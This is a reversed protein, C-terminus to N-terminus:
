SAAPTQKSKVSWVAAILATAAAIVGGYDAAPIVGRGVLYAVIAPVVARIIGNITNVDMPKGKPIFPDLWEFSISPLESPPRAPPPKPTDQPLPPNALLLAQAEVSKVRKEWGKGFTPWTKLGRLFAMRSACLGRILASPDPHQQVAALTQQGVSGDQPIGLLSQLHRVARLPGSNVAFDFVAFDLGAPMQDGSVKDWYNTRYIAEVEADTIQKVTQKPLGQRQRYADYVAQTIGKNTAGGPDKPHNVYGGEHRLVEQLAKRYSNNM